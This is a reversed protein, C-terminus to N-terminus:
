SALERQRLLTLVRAIDKKVVQHLHPNEMKKEKNRKVKLEFLEKRKDQLLAKLEPTSQDRLEDVKTM